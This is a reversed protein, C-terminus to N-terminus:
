SYNLDDNVLKITIQRVAAVKDGLLTLAMTGIYRATDNPSFLDAALLLQEALEYKFRWNLENDTELFMYLRPLCLLRKEPTIM